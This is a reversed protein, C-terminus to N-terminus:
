PLAVLRRIFVIRTIKPWTYFTDRVRLKCLPADLVPRRVRHVYAVAFIASTGPASGSLYATIGSGVKGAPEDM